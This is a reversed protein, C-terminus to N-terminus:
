ETVALDRPGTLIEPGRETVRITHELHLGGFGLRYYPAEINIVMNPELEINEFGSAFIDSRAERRVLMPPEYLELGIGHGCHHRELDSLGLRHAMRMVSEGVASVPAGPKADDIGAAIADTLIRYVREHEPRAQGCAVTIGTDAWYGEFTGGCDIRILDGRELTRSGPWFFCSSDQGSSTGWLRPVAGHAAFTERFVRYPEDERVGARAASISAQMSQENIACVQRLLAIERETKVLRIQRFLHSAPEFRANPLRERLADFTPWPLNNEDIGIRERALGAEELAIALAEVASPYAPATELLSVLRAENTTLEAQGDRMVFFTGYRNIKKINTGKSSLHMLETTPLVMVFDEVRPPMLVYTQLAVFNQFRETHYGAAYQVNQPTTAVLAAYGHIALTEVFRSANLLM